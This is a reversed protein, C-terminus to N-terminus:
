LSYMVINYGRFEYIYNKFHNIKDNFFSLPGAKKKQKGKVEIYIKNELQEKPLLPSEKLM